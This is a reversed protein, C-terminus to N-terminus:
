EYLKYEMHKFKTIVILFLILIIEVLRGTWLLAVASYLLTEPFHILRICYLKYQM